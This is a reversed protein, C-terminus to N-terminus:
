PTQMLALGMAQALQLVAALRASDHQPDPQAAVADLWPIYPEAMLLHEAASASGAEELFVMILRSNLGLRATADEQAARIGHMMVGFEVGRRTHLQPYCYLDVSTQYDRYACSLYNWTLQYFDAEDCLVQLAQQSHAAPHTPYLGAPAPEINNKRALAAYLDPALTDELPLARECSYHNLQQM